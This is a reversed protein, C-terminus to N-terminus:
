KQGAIEQMVKAAEKRNKVIYIKKDKASKLQELINKIQYRFIMRWLELTVKEQMGEHKDPRHAPPFFKRKYVSYLCRWPSFNFFVVTDARALRIPISKTFNGELIWREGAALRAVEEHWAKYTPFAFSWDPHHYIKDLHTVERELKEGLTKAFTSKGSGSRGIIM